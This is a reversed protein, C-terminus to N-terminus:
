EGPILTPTLAKFFSHRIIEVKFETEQGYIGPSTHSEKVANIEM